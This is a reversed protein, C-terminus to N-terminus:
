CVLVMLSIDQDRKNSADDWHAIIGILGRFAVTCFPIFFASVLMTITGLMMITVFIKGCYTLKKYEDEKENFRFKHNWLSEKKEALLLLDKNTDSRNALRTTIDSLFNFTDDPATTAMARPRNSTTAHMDMFSSTVRLAHKPHRVAIGPPPPTEQEQEELVEGDDDAVGVRDYESGFRRRKDTDGGSFIMSLRKLKSKQPKPPFKTPKLTKDEFADTTKSDDEEEEDNGGISHYLSGRGHKKRSVVKLQDDDDDSDLDLDEINLDLEANARRRRRVIAWREEKSVDNAIMDRHAIVM